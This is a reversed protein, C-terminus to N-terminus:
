GLYLYTLTESLVFELVKMREILCVKDRKICHINEIFACGTSGGVMFKAVLKVGVLIIKHFNVKLWLEDFPILNAKLVM